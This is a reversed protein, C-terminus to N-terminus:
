PTTGPQIAFSFVGVRDSSSAPEDAANLPVVVYYANTGPTGTPGTDVYPSSPADHSDYADPDDLNFYPDSSQRVQYHTYVPEHTWDLQVDGGNVITPSVPMHKGWVFLNGDFDGAVVELAPDNDLNALAPKGKVSVNTPNPWGNATLGDHHWVYVRADDSGVIVELDGDGDIDGAAPSSFVDAGTQRPWGDVWSGDHHWAWMRDDDGGVLIELDGNGDIDVVLPSSRVTWTTRGENGQWLSNGNKDLLYVYGDGSGVATELGPINLDIDTIAPTSMVVDGTTFPWGDKLSGDNNFAYVKNSYSGGVVIDLSGDGDIDAIVPSSNIVQNGFTDSADGISVPWGTKATGDANFAYLRGDALPIIIDLVADDDLHAVAPTALIRYNTESDTGVRVPWGSVTSGDHHFAYLHGDAAGIIIELDNNADLDATAAAAKVNGGVAQPWNALMQGSSNYVEVQNGIQNGMIIEQTGDGDLDVVTPSAFYRTTVNETSILGFRASPPPGFLWLYQTDANASDFWDLNTTGGSDTFDVYDPYGHWIGNYESPWHWDPNFTQALPLDYGLLPTTPDYTGNVSQMNDLHGPIVLHVEEGTDYVYMYPDWPLPPLFFTPNQGPDDLVVTLEAIFGQIYYGQEMETNTAFFGDDPPLAQKTHDFITFVVDTAFNASRQEVLSQDANQVILEYHGGGFIPLEHIFAHDYDAGRSLAEYTIHLVALENNTNLGKDVDIRVTMDNYDWDSWGTNKLDEYAVFTSESEWTLPGYVTASAWDDHDIDSPIRSSNDAPIPVGRSDVGTASVSNVYGIGPDASIVDARFSLQHTDEGTLDPLTWQGNIPDALPLGNLVGSGSIYSMNGPLEDHLTLGTALGAGVNALTISYTIEDGANIVAAGAQKEVVLAPAVVTLAVANSTQQDSNTYYYDAQNSIVDGDQASSTEPLLAEVVVIRQEYPPISTFSANVQNANHTGNTVGTVQLRSDVLDSIVVDYMTADIPTSPITLTYVLASGFTLEESAIMDKQLSGESTSLNLAVVPGSYLREDALGDGNSDPPTGTKSSYTNVRAQNQLNLSASIGADVQTTYTIHWRAGVHLIDLEYTLDGAGAVNTDTMVTQVPPFAPPYSLTMDSTGLFALDAPLTDTLVIGHAESNGLNAVQLTFTVTDDAGILTGGASKYLELYPQRIFVDYDAQPSRHDVNNVIFGDFAYGQNNYGSLSDYWGIFADNDAKLLNRHNLYYQTATDTGKVGTVLTDFELIFEYDTSSASNDITQLFWRLDKDDNDLPNLAHNDTDLAVGSLITSGTVYDFGDPLNNEELVPWYAIVSAPVTGTIIWHVNDGITVNKPIAGKRLSVGRVYVTMEDTNDDNIDITAPWQHGTNDARSNYAVSALNTMQAGAPLGAPITADYKFTQSEGPALSLVNSWLLVGGNGNAPDGSVATYTSPNPAGLGGTTSVLLDAPIADTVVLNYATAEGANTVTITYSVVDNAVLGTAPTADKDLVLRPALYGVNAIDRLSYADGYTNQGSLKGFNAVIWGPQVNPIDQVIADLEVQWSSAQAVNCLRWELYQLGNLSGLTPVQPASNCGPGDSFIGNVNYTDSNTVFVMGRPLFDRIVIAKADVDAAGTYTLRFRMTDGTFGAARDAWTSSEQDWVDKGFTPMRTRVTDSSSDPIVTGFRDPDIADQWDDTITVQNTLSDGSVVPEGTYPAAEYTADVTAEFTITGSSGPTTSSSPMNWTITTQGTGPTDLEVLDPVQSASNEVYTMGDPLIDTLVVDTMTYYEAVYFDIDFTVTSGIGVTKPSASKSVTLYDATVQDPLDDGPTSQTGDSSPASDYSGDAEYNVSMVTDEPIIAGSMPGAYPGSIADTDDGTRYRYPIAASFTILIPDNYQAVTLTGLNWALELSGNPKLDIAPTTSSANPNPTISVDGSYAVGPPLLTTAVVNNTSGVKNNQVSISYQYPWDADPGRGPALIDYEGAGPAQEDATSQLSNMEIDIVQPGAQLHHSTSLWSGSNDPITNVAATILNDFTDTPTLSDQLSAVVSLRLDENVEIDAINDWNIITAGDPQEVISTPAPSASVFDLGIPLTDTITLNYGKDSVPIAGSNYITVAYTVESGLLPEQSVAQSVSLIPANPIFLNESRANVLQAPSAPVTAGLLIAVLLRKFTASYWM